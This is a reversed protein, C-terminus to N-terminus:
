ARPYPRPYLLRLIPMAKAPAPAAHRRLLYSIFRLFEVLSEPQNVISSPIHITQMGSSCAYLHDFRKKGRPLTQASNPRDIKILINYVPIAIDAKTFLSSHLLKAPIGLMRLEYYFIKTALNSQDLRKIGQLHADCLPYDYLAESRQQEQISIACHCEVCVVQNLPIPTSIPLLTLKQM